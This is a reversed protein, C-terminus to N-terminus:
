IIIKFLVMKFSLFHLNALCKICVYHVTIKPFCQFLKIGNEHTSFRKVIGTSVCIKIIIKGFIDEYYYKNIITMSILVSVSISRIVNNVVNREISSEHSM